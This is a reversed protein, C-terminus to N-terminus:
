SSSGPLEPSTEGNKTTPKLILAVCTSIVTVIMATNPTTGNIAPGVCTAVGGIAAALYVGRKGRRLWAIKEDLFYAIGFLLVIGLAFFSGSHYLKSLMSMTAAPDATPDVVVSPITAASGSGLASGAAVLASGSGGDLVVGADPIVPDAYALGAHFAGILSFATLAALAISAVLPRLVRTM